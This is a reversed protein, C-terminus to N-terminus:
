LIFLKEPDKKDQEPRIQNRKQWPKHQHNQKHEAHEGVEQNENPYVGKKSM